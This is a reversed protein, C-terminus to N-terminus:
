LLCEYNISDKIETYVVFLCFVYIILQLVKIESHVVFVSSQVINLSCVLKFKASIKYKEMEIDKKGFEQM